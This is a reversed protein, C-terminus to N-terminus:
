LDGLGLDSHIPRFAECGVCFAHAASHRSVFVDLRVSCGSVFRSVLFGFSMELVVVFVLVILQERM